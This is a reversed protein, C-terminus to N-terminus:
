VEVVHQLAVAQHRLLDGLGVGHAGLEAVLQGGVVDVDAGAIVHRPEGVALPGVDEQLAAAEAVLRDVDLQLELHPVRRVRGAHDDVGDTAALDREVPPELSREERGRRVQHLRRRFLPGVVVGPMAELPEDAAVFLFYPPMDLLVGAEGPQESRQPTHPAMRPGGNPLNVTTERVPARRRRNTRTEHSRGTRVRERPTASAATDTHYANAWSLKAVEVALRRGRPWAYMCRNWSYSRTNPSISSRMM